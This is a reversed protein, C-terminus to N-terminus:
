GFGAAGFSQSSNERVDKEIGFEVVEECLELNQRRHAIVVITPRGPLASAPPALIEREGQSDIASTAEDLVLLRPRRLLARALAIRQREGGSILTGREGTVTDLGNELRRVLDDAGALALAQWMEDETAASNAWALNRRISDHFLFADQAVYSLGQRWATLTGGELACGGARITGTHPPYLGALLDAFITKGSGSAGTVGLFASPTITLHFHAM